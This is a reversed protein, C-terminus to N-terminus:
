KKYILLPNVIDNTSQCTIGHQQNKQQCARDVLLQCTSIAKEKEASAGANSTTELSTTQGEERKRKTM